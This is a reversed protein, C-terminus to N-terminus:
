PSEIEKITGEQAERCRKVYDELSEPMRRCWCLVTFLDSMPQRGCTPCVPLDFTVVGRDSTVLATGRAVRPDGFEARIKKM